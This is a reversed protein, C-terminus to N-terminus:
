DCLRRIDLISYSINGRFLCDIDTGPEPILSSDQDFHVVYRDELRSYMSCQAPFPSGKMINAIRTKEVTSNESTPFPFNINHVVNDQSEAVKEAFKISHVIASDISKMLDVHSEFDFKKQILKGKEGPLNQSLALSPIGLAAGEIAAGLTGSSLTIPVSVNAGWNIGSIVIDPRKGDLLHFFGLNVCDSPNGDVSWVHCGEIVFPVAKLERKQCMARGVGSKECDPAVVYVEWGKQALAIALKQLSKSQIGDDNSLLAIM